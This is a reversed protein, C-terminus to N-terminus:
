SLALAHSLSQKSRDLDYGRGYAQGLLNAINQETKEFGSGAVERMAKELTQIAQGTSGAIQQRQGLYGM